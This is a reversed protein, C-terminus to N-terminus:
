GYSRTPPRARHLVPADGRHSIWAIGAEKIVKSWRAAERNVFSTFEAPGASADPDLGAAELKEKVERIGYIRVVKQHLRTVIDTLTGGIDIGLSSAATAGSRTQQTM